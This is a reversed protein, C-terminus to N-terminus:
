CFAFGEPLDVSLSHFLSQREPNCLQIWQSNVPNCLKNEWGSSNKAHPFDMWTDATHLPPWRKQLTVTPMNQVFVVFLLQHRSCLFVGCNVIHISYTAVDSWVACVTLLESPSHNAHQLPLPPRYLHKVAIKKAKSVPMESDLPDRSIAQSWGLM